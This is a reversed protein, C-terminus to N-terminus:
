LSKPYSLIFTTGENKNSQVKIKGEHKQIIHKVISLGLGTGPVESSRSADVRFFREFIRHLQDEPIGVGKDKILLHDWSGESFSSIEIFVNEHGYKIANDILNILVHEFLYFDVFFTKQKLSINVEIKKEPYNLVLDQLLYDITPEIEILEKKIEKQNEVSTLQLLDKFLNILRSSNNEIKKFIPAYINEFNQAGELRSKLIQLQGNLITLPTRVEHSFNSVFDERIQDALKKETTDHFICLFESINETPSLKIDFYRKNIDNPQNFSFDRLQSTSKHPLSLEIFNQFELNRTINVLTAPLLGESINLLSLFSKNAYKVVLTQNVIFVPEDMSDLLQKYKLNESEYQAQKTQIAADRLRLSAEIEEWSLDDTSSKESIKMLFKDSPFAYLKLFFINLLFATIWIILLLLYNHDNRGVVYSTISLLTLFFFQLAIVKKFNM